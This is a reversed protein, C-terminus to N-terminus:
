AELEAAVRRLEAIPVITFPKFKCSPGHRDPAPCTSAFKSAVDRLTQAKVARVQEPFAEAFQEPPLSCLAALAVEAAEENTRVALMPYGDWATFSDSALRANVLAKRAEDSM